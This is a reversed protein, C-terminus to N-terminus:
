ELEMNIYKGDEKQVHASFGKVPIKGEVSTIGSLNSLYFDTIQAPRHERHSRVVMATEPETFLTHWFGEGLLELRSTTRIDEVMITDTSCAIRAFHDYADLPPTINTVVGGIKGCFNKLNKMQKKAADSIPLAEIDIPM